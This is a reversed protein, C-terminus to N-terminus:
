NDIVRAMSFGMAFGIVTMISLEIVEEQTLTWFTAIDWLCGYLILLIYLFTAM